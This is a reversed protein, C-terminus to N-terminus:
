SNCGRITEFFPYDLPQTLRLSTAFLSGEKKYWVLVFTVLFFRCIKAISMKIEVTIIEKGQYIYSIRKRESM